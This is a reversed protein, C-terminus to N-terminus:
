FDKCVRKTGHLHVQFTAILYEVVILSLSLRLFYSVSSNNSEIKNVFGFTSPFGEVHIIRPAYNILNRSVCLVLALTIKFRM